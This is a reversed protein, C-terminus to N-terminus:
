FRAGLAFQLGSTTGVNAEVNVLLPWAELRLGVIVHHLVLDQGPLVTQFPEAEGEDFTAVQRELTRGYRFAYGLYPGLSMVGEVPIPRGVVLEGGLHVITAEPNGLVAGADIRMGVDPLFDHGEVIAWRLELTPSAVDLEPLAALQAGLEFGGPLGKRAVVFLPTLADPADDGMAGRWLSSGPEAPAWGLGLQLEMGAAGTTGGTGSFRPRLAGLVEELFASYGVEDLFWAGDERTVFGRASFPEASAPRASAALTLALLIVRTARLLGESTSTM